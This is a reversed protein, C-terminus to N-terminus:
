RVPSASVRSTLSLSLATLRVLIGTSGLACTTALPKNWFGSALSIPQLSITAMNTAIAASPLFPRGRTRVSTGDCHRPVGPASHEPAEAFRVVHM